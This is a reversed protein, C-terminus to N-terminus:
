FNRSWRSGSQWSTPFRCRLFSPFMWCFAEKRWNWRPRRPRNMRPRRWHRWFIRRRASQQIWKTAYTSFRYELTYDFKKAAVLLGINGEQILDMLPVGQGAYKKVVSVVLRLNSNVMEHIADEDGQACRMALLREQQADLQPYQRIEQLYQKLDDDAGRFTEELEYAEKCTTM